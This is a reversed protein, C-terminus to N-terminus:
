SDTLADAGVNGSRGGGVRLTVEFPTGRPPRRGSVDDGFRLRAVVTTRPRSSSRRRRRPRRSCTPCRSGTRAPSRTPWCSPPWRSALTPGCSRRPRLPRTSRSRSRSRGRRCCRGGRDRRSRSRRRAPATAERTAGHDALALNARAVATVRGEASLCLPRRCRTRPAGLAVEVVPRTTSGIWRRGRGDHPARRPPARTPRAARGDPGRDGRAPAPRRGGPGRRARGVLTARTAGAPLCCDSTAGRTSPSRTTPRACRSRTCRRSCSRTAAADAGPHRRGSATPVTLGTSATFHLFTRASCGEHIRYDLLRAHRRVSVRRRATGLYAETAVADQYYSLHDAAYALLEVLM